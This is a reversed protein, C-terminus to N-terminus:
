NRLRRAAEIARRRRDEWSTGTDPSASSNATNTITPRQQTQQTQQPRNGLGANDPQKNSTGSQFFLEPDLADGPIEWSRVDKAQNRLSNEISIAMSLVEKESPGRKNDKVFQSCADWLTDQMGLKNMLMFEQRNVMSALKAKGESIKQQRESEESREQQSKIWEANTQLKTKLDKLENQLSAVHDDAALSPLNALADTAPIGLLQLAGRVDKSEKMRKFAVYDPDVETNNRPSIQMNQQNNHAPASQNGQSRWWDNANSYGSNTPANSQRGSQGLGFEAPDLQRSFDSNSTNVNDTEFTM